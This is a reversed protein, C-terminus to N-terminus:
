QVDKVLRVSWGYWCYEGDGADAYNEGFDIANAGYVYYPTYPTSSWYRGRASTCCLSSGGRGGAAPLFVAGSSEMKRWEAVTYQNDTWNNPNETFSLGRPTTWENPLIILGHVGNVTAQGLMHTWLLYYWEEYSLTRWGDSMNNGWDVFDGSYDNVRNSNNIGYYTAATSWGFLDVTGNTSVSGNGNIACNASRISPYDWQNAAFSWTWHEGLDTTTAQLNGQSFKVKKTESVTFTGPLVGDKSAVPTDPSNSDKCALM